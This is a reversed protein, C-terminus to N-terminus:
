PGSKRRFLSPVNPRATLGQANLRCNKTPLLLVTSGGAKRAPKASRRLPRRRAGIFRPDFGRADGAASRCSLATSASRKKSNGSRTASISAVTQAFVEYIEVLSAVAEAAPDRAIARSAAQLRESLAHITVHEASLRDLVPRLGENRRLRPFLSQDEITHHMELLQCQRGCLNGFTRYNEIMTMAAVRDAVDGATGLGSLFRDLAHRVGAIEDLHYRHYLGLRRGHARQAETAGPIPPAIPRTADDLFAIGEVGSEKAPNAPATPPGPM